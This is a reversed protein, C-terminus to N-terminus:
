FNINLMFLKNNIKVKRENSMCLKACNLNHVRLSTVFGDSQVTLCVKNNKYWADEEDYNNM